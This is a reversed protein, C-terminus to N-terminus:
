VTLPLTTLGPNGLIKFLKLDADGVQEPTYSADITYSTGDLLVSTGLNVHNATILFGNGLYVASADTSVDANTVEAVYNWPAGNLPPTTNYTNDTDTGTDYPILARAAHVFAFVALFATVRATKM